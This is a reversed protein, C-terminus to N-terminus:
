QQPALVFAELRRKNDMKTTNENQFDKWSFKNKLLSLFM